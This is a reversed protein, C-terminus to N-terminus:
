LTSELVPTSPVSFVYMVIMVEIGLCAYKACQFVYMVIMVDIGLCAYKACQFCVDCDHCRNWSLCVQCVSFM